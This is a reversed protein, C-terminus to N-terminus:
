LNMNLKDRRFLNQKELWTAWVPSIIFQIRLFTEKKITMREDALKVSLCIRFPQKKSEKNKVHTIILYCGAVAVIEVHQNRTRPIVKLQAFVIDFCPCLKHLSGEVFYPGEYNM